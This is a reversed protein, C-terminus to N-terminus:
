LTDVKDKLENVDEKLNDLKTEINALRLMLEERTPRNQLESHLYKIGGALAMGIAGIIYNWIQSTFDIMNHIFGIM